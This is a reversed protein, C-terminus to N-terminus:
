NKIDLSPTCCCIKNGGEAEARSLAAKAARIIDNSSAGNEPFSAIGVSLERNLSDDGNTLEKKITRKIREAVNVSEKM